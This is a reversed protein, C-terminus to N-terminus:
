LEEKEERNAKLTSAFEAIEDDYEVWEKIQRKARVLKPEKTLPNNCLDITKAKAFVEDSCWTECYLWSEDLSYIPVKHQMNNPLDQDLNALSNPDITLQQYQGRLIDGAAMQRFRKLDVVYLASIHYPLDGLHSKWYGSEWFRFSKTDERKSYCFPTYAYPKGNLDLDMLAQLDTRVIQDSDVFIIRELNLPFLVDLFLIKYAWILRQKEKQYRLWSPWKYTVFEYDFDYKEAFKGVFTKYNPSLFDEILWLKVRSKTHMLVSKVMISLFREYLHGSAVTFINIIKETKMAKKVFDWVSDAPNLDDGVLDIAEKGAQKKVKPLLVKGEFSDLLITYEGESEEISNGISDKVEQIKYIEKSKGSRIRFKYIGSHAKLQFYGLNSM